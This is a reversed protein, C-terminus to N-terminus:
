RFMRSIYRPRRGIGGIVDTFTTLLVAIALGTMLSKSVITFMAWLILGILVIGFLRIATNEPTHGECKIVEHLKLFQEEIINM